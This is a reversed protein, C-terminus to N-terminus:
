GEQELLCMVLQEQCLCMPHLVQTLVHYTRHICHKVKCLCTHVPASGHMLGALGVALEGASM